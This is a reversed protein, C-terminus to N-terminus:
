SSKEKIGALLYPLLSNVYDQPTIESFQTHYDRSMGIVSHTLLRSMRQNHAPACDPCEKDLQKLFLSTLEIHVISEITSHEEQSRVATSINEIFRIFALFVEKVTDELSLSRPQRSCGLDLALKDSVVKELLDFKDLYHNYFTARNIRATETIDKVTIQSFDKKHSLKLFADVIAEQTRILRPDQKLQTM